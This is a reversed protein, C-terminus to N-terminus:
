RDRRPEGARNRLSGDQGMLRTNYTELYRRRVPDAPYRERDGYPYHTMGHFPLPTVTGGHSTNLDADKIWGVSYLFFDRIWGPRLRPAVRADFEISTEDGPAMVIYQDDAAQLLQTVEGFRTFRGEIPRWIPEPTSRQYDFWHPGYRGGKRYTRSFGRYHLDAATPALRTVVVPSEPSDTAISAQDWYIELNTRIRIRHDDSLFRGTLDVVVLKNKGSPISLNAIATRWAGARDKVELTPWSVAAARGQSMAINISADTPFVWGRLLLLTREGPLVEGPDIILDHPQVVGQYRERSLNSVFRDDAQILAPLLDAGRDDSASRPPRIRHPHYLELRVPPGPPVFREDTVVDVSDPHDVLVLRIEDTFSTEWLEETLQIRYRGSDEALADRPIKLYERSAAAPAFATTGNGGIGVPMGLASRWMVDTVFHFGTGNWAYLFGCSSKLVQNEVVDQDSGPFYLTQPVGNPWEVRIVDAKLHRGLGITTVRGTVVRMLYVEGVRAELKAGIGLGNNKGSGTGLGTLSIRMSLNESGGDNRLLRLGGPGAVLLDPDHDGDIDTAAVAQAVPLGAPLRDTQDVFRGNKDNLFLGAGGGGGRRDGVVVLDLFGDNDYDFFAAARAALPVLSGLAAGAREDLVFGRGQTNRYLASRGSDAAGVFLDLSGDNDYDAVALAGGGPAGTLGAAATRDEFRRERGNHFLVAGSRTASVVVDLMGDDDLDGFEADRGGTAGTLGAAETLDRFTGDGNNRLFGVGTETALLLDLDGDHDLDAVVIRSTRGPRGVGAADARNTFRGKGTNRYLYGKGGRDVAFLDLHGDNDFDGFSAAMAGVLDVGAEAAADTWGSDRLAILHARGTDGASVFVDDWDDGDYDGVALAAAGTGPGSVQLFHATADAFTVAPAASDRQLRRRMAETQPWTVRPVGPVTIQPGRLQALDTQFPLTVELIRHLRTLASAASDAGAARLAGVAADLAGTADDPLAPPLQQMAELQGLAGDHDGTAALAQALELRAPINAPAREVVLELARAEDGRRRGSDPDTRALEALAYPIRPDATSTRALETLEERARERRGRLLEAAVLVLRADLNASDRKIVERMQREADRPRGMRLYVIGLTIRAPIEDPALGIMRRFAAAAEPLRNAELHTYGQSEAEVIRGFSDGSDGGCGALALLVLLSGRIGAGARRRM